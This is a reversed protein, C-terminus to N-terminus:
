CIANEKEEKCPLSELKSCQLPLLPASPSSHAGPPQASPPHASQSFPQLKSFLMFHFFRKAIPVQQAESDKLM